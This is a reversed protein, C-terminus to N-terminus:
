RDSGRSKKMFTRLLWLDGVTCAAGAALFAVGLLPLPAHSSAYRWQCWFVVFLIYQDIGQHVRPWGIRGSSAYPHFFHSPRHTAYERHRLDRRHWVPQSSSGRDELHLLDLHHISNLRILDAQAGPFFGCWIVKKPLIRSHIFRLRICCENPNSANKLCWPRVHHQPVPVGSPLCLQAYEHFSHPFSPLDCASPPAQNKYVEHPCSRFLAM